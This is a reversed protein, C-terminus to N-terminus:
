WPVVIPAREIVPMVDARVGNSGSSGPPQWTGVGFMYRM